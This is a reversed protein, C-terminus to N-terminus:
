KKGTVERGEERAQLERDFASGGAYSDSIGLAAKLAYNEQQKMAADAHTEGARGGAGASSTGGLPKIMSLLRARLESVKAEIEEEAVGTFSCM